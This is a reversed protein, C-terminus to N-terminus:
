KMWDESTPNEKFKQIKQYHEFSLKGIQMATFSLTDLNTLAVHKLQEKEFIEETDKLRYSFVSIVGQVNVHHNKLVHYADLTAKGTCVVDDILLINHYKEFFADSIHKHRNSKEDKLVYGIPLNLAESLMVALCIGAASTGVILDVNSFQERAIVSVWKTIVKRVRPYALIYRNDCRLPLRMGNSAYYKEDSNLHIAGIELLCKSVTRDM